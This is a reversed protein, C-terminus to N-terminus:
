ELNMEQGLTPDVGRERCREEHIHRMMVDKQQMTLNKSEDALIIVIEDETLSPFLKRSNHIMREDVKVSLAKGDDDIGEFVNRVLRSKPSTKDLRQEQAQRCAETIQAVLNNWRTHHWETPAASIMNNIAQARLAADKVTLTTVDGDTARIHVFGAAAWIQDITQLETVIKSGKSFGATRHSRAQAMLQYYCAHSSAENIIAALWDCRNKLEKMKALEDPTMKEDETLEQELYQKQSQEEAKKMLPALERIKVDFEVQFKERDDDSMNESTEIIEKCRRVEALYNDIGKKGIADKEIETSMKATNKLRYAKEEARSKTVQELYKDGDAKELDSFGSVKEGNHKKRQKRAARRKQKEESMSPSEKDKTTITCYGWAM